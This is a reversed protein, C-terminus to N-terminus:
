SAGDRAPEALVQEGREDASRVGGVLEEDLREDIMLAEM